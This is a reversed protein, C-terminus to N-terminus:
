TRERKRGSIMVYLYPDNWILEVLSGGMVPRFKTHVYHIM